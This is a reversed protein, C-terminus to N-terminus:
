EDDCRIGVVCSLADVETLCRNFSAQQSHMGTEVLLIILM